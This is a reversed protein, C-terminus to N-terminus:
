RVRYLERGDGSALLELDLHARAFAVLEPSATAQNIVVYRCPLSVPGPPEPQVPQGSSLRLFNGIVPMRAYAEVAGPPMRGIIGGVLPHEHLTAYYVVRRDQSGVGTLGDGAGFPLECLAAGDRLAALRAYVVPQDLRTLPIPAFLYDLGVSAILAWQVLPRRWRGDQDRLDLAALRLASLVGLGLYVVVMARGPMRANSVVPVYRKLSEPLPLGVDVGAVTLMPGLAWLGFVGCVVLWRRAERSDSWRGRPGLLLVLPVVGLWAVGEVRDLGWGSYLRSTFGGTLPHFPNGSALATLDIGRPASRWFYTQSVYRGERALRVAEIILPAACVAFVLGTVVLARVGRRLDGRPPRHLRIRPRWRTLVLVLVLVWGLTLPNHVDRMSVVRGAVAFTAGGTTAIWIVAALDIALAAVCTYRCVAAARSPPRGEVSFSAAEWWAAVYTAALLGLYVVYYYASYAAAAMTLGCGIAALWSGDRLARRLCLAFVPFVWISLLEFHGPMHAGVYPSGGFLVAALIAARRRGTLDVALAYAGVAGALVSGVIYLNEVEVIPVRSLVTAGVVGLLATHSHNVLDVGFPFFLFASHFFGSDASGLVHRMWWLNWLFTFNDGPAGPIHTSFHRVLPWTWLVALALLAALVPLHARAIRM